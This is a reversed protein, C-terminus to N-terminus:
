LKVRPRDWGPMGDGSLRVGATKKKSHPPEGHAPDMFM